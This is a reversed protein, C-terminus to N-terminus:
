LALERRHERVHERPSPLSGVEGTRKFGKSEYLGIAADNLDAVDLVLRTAGDERAWLIALDVLARGIGTQRVEPAVWM